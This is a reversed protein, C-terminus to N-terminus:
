HRRIRQCTGATDTPPSRTAGPFSAIARTRTEVVEYTYGDPCHVKVPPREVDSRTSSTTAPGCGTLGLGLGFGIALIMAAPRMGSAYRRLRQDARVM